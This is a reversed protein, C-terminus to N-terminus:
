ATRMIWTGAKGDERLWYRQGECRVQFHYFVKGAQQQLETWCHEVAEVQMIKGHRNFKIPVLGFRKELVTISEDKM